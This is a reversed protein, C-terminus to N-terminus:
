LASPALVQPLSLGPLLLSLHAPLSPQLSPIYRLIHGLCPLESLQDSGVCTDEIMDLLMGRVEKIAVFTVKELNLPDTLVSVHSSIIFM